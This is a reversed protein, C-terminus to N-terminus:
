ALHRGAGRGPHRRGGIRPRASASACISAGPFYEDLTAATMAAYVPHVAFPSIAMLTATVRRTGALLMAAAVAPDRQFLHCSVWLRGRRECRGAGRVRPAAARHRAGDLAVGFM